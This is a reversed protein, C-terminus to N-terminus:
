PQVEAVRVGRTPLPPDPRAILRRWAFSVVWAMIVAAVVGPAWVGLSGLLFGAASPALVRSLSELSAALGLTGGVEEPYVAKSLASSIVTNLVGTAVSLPILVILLLILNPVAAWAALSAAMLISASLILRPETFRATLRGILVGQVLVVLLGVYALVYGTAQADLGLRYQGWLAFVTQFTASALGFFLRIHLLPGVRPRTLARVLAQASFKPRAQMALQARRDPTLSEPLAVFVSIINALALGAAAFAPVAYGWRSLFGGAAPGLIFGLGFAAGILGLGKARDKVDTVDTIYAQAVSINGGTIGDLLRSAFLVGLVAANELILGDAAVVRSLVSGAIGRGLPEAVALLLLGVFTGLLSVLLVPRRGYRDSLRGLIPAGVLQAAAYAAVLLGVVFPTAGFREAYFPLLPLILGFGLMDILVIVFINILRGRTM